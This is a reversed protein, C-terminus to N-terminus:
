PLSLRRVSCGEGCGEAVLESPLGSADLLVAASGDAVTLSVTSNTPPAGGILLIDTRSVTLAGGRECAEFYSSMNVVECDTEAVTFDVCEAGDCLRVSLPYATPALDGTDVFLQSECTTSDCIPGLCGMLGLALPVLSGTRM